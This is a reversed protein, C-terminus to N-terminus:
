YISVAYFTLDDKVIFFTKARKAVINIVTDILLLCLKDNKALLWIM